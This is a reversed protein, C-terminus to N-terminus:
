HVTLFLMFLISFDARLLVWCLSPVIRTWAPELMSCLMHLVIWSYDVFIHGFSQINLSELYHLYYQYYLLFLVVHIFLTFWKVHKQINRVWWVRWLLDTIVEILVIVFGCGCYCSTKPATTHSLTLKWNPHRYGKHANMPWMYWHVVEFSSSPWSNLLTDSIHSIQVLNQAGPKTRVLGPQNLCRSLSNIFLSREREKERDKERM